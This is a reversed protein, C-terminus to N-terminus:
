SPKWIEDFVRRFNGGSASGGAARRLRAAALWRCRQRHRRLGRHRPPVDMTAAPLHRREYGYYRYGAETEDAFDFGYGVHTDGAREVLYDINNLLHELTPEEAAVFGPFACVGIVGGSESVASIQEDTLNRRSDYVARANAHSVIVPAGSAEIAELSTRTGVHALDVVIGLENMREVAARGFKTLGSDRRELCGDGIRNGFNYTLQIVRVGLAYYADLLNLDGEIPDAGQLHLIIALKEAEIAREVEETSRTLAIPLRGARELQLWEALIGLTYRSDHISAVTALVTSVKGAALEPLHSEVDRPQIFPAAADLFGWHRNATM